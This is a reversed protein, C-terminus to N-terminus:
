NRPPWPVPVLVPDPGTRSAQPAPVDRFQWGPLWTYQAADTRKTETGTMAPFLWIFLATTVACFSLVLHARSLCLALAALGFTSAILYHYYFQVPKGSAAWFGLCVLYIVAPLRAGRWLGYAVAPIIALSSLPNGAMIMLRFAGDLENHIMWIPRINLVWQWWASGYPHARMPKALFQAMEWQLPLLGGLTLPDHEVLFGPLFTIFYALLPLAGFWLFPRWSRESVLALLGFTALVPLISWKCALALGFVVGSAEFKRQVFLMVAWAGFAFMYVDLMALRSLSLLLGQTGLLVGFALTAQRDAAYWWLARMSAFLGLTGAVVSGIRWAFPQNGFVALSLAMFEKALMPHERNTLDYGLLLRAATPIYFQEDFHRDLPIEIRILALVFFLAAIVWCGVLPDNGKRWAPSQKAAFTTM